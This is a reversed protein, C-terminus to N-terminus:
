VHKIDRVTTYTWGMEDIAAVLRRFIEINMETMHNWLHLTYGPTRQRLEKLFRKLDNENLNSPSFWLGLPYEQRTVTHQTNKRWAHIGAVKLLDTHAIVNRPFSMFTPSIGFHENFLACARRIEKEADERSIDKFIRHSYGHLGLEIEPSRLSSRETSSLTFYERNSEFCAREADTLLARVVEEKELLLGVIQVNCPIRKVSLYEMFSRFNDKALKGYEVAQAYDGNWFYSNYSYELDFSINVSYTGELFNRSSLNM